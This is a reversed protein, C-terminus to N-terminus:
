LIWFRRRLEKKADVVIGGCKIDSLIDRAIHRLVSGVSFRFPVAFHVQASSADKRLEPELLM